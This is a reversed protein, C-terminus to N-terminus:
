LERVHWSTVARVDKPRFALVHKEFYPKEGIPVLIRIYKLSSLVIAARARSSQVKGHKTARLM